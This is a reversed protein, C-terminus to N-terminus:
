FMIAKKDNPSVMMGDSFWTAALLCSNGDGEDCLKEFTLIMTIAKKIHSYCLTILSKM